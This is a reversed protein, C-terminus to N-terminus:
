DSKKKLKKLAEEAAALEAKKKSSGTGKGWIKRNIEVETFFTRDHVPGKEAVVEYKPRTDFKAVVYEQLATKSDALEDKEAAKFIQDRLNVLIFERAEDIGQDLYIAGIVAEFCDSLISPNERGGELEVGKSIFMPQGLNIKSAAQALIEANVLSARLKALDGEKFQPFRHFLFDTVIFSLISDGLFELREYIKLENKGKDEVLLSRHTLAQKLLDKNHFKVSLLKEALELNDETM